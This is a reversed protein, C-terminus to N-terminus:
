DSSLHRLELFLSSLLPRYDGLSQLRFRIDDEDSIEICEITCRFGQATKTHVIDNIVFRGTCSSDVLEENVIIEGIRPLYDMTDTHPIRAIGHNTYRIEINM